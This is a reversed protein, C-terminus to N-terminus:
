STTRETPCAANRRRWSADQAAGALYYAAGGDGGCYSHIMQKELVGASSSLCFNRVRPHPDETNRAAVLTDCAVVPSTYYGATPVLSEFWLVTRSRTKLFPLHLCCGYGKLHFHIHRQVSGGDEYSFSDIWNPPPVQGHGRLLTILAGPASALSCARSPASAM